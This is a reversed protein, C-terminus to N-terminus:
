HVYRHIEHPGNLNGCFFNFDWCNFLLEWSNIDRIIGVVGNENVAPFLCNALM